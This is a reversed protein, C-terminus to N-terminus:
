MNDCLFLLYEATIIKCFQCFLASRIDTVVAINGKAIALTLSRLIHLCFMINTLHQKLGICLMVTVKYGM